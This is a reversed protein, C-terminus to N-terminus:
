VFLIKAHYTKMGERAFIKFTELAEPSSKVYEIANRIKMTSDHLEKLADCAM